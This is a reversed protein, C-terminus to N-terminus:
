SDPTIRKHMKPFSHEEDEYCDGGVLLLGTFTHCTFGNTMYKMNVVYKGVVCINKKV